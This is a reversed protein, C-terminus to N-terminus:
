ICMLIVAINAYLYFAPVPTICICNYPGALAFIVARLIGPMM